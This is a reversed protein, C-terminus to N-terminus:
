KATRRWDSDTRSSGQILRQETVAGAGDDTVGFKTEQCILVIM